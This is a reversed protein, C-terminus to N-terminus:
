NFAPQLHSFTYLNATQVMLNLLHKMKYIELLLNIFALKLMITGSIRDTLVSSMKYFLYGPLWWLSSNRGRCSNCLVVFGLSCETGSLLHDLFLWLWSCMRVTLWLVPTLLSDKLGVSHNSIHVHLLHESWVHMLVLCSKVANETLLQQQQM